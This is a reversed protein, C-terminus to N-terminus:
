FHILDLYKHADKRSRLIIISKKDQVETLKKLLLPRIIYRFTLVRYLLNPRLEWRPLYFKENVMRQPISSKDGFFRKISRSVFGYLAVMTPFDLFIIAEARQIRQDLCRHHYNGDVIWSDKALLSELKKTFAEQSTRKWNPEWYLDDLHVLPIGTILALKTSFVTKGCGPAGLVIIRRGKLSNAKWDISNM